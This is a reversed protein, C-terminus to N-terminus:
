ELWQNITETELDVILLKIAQEQILKRISEDFVTDYIKSPVSLYLTASNALETLITRYVLYQGIAAYLEQTLTDKDAFCKVEVLLIEQSHGNNNQQAEIDIFITRKKIRFYKSTRTIIWGAKKLANVVQEHCNDLAPM